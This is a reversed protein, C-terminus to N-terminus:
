IKNKVTRSFLNTLQPSLNDELSRMYGLFNAGSM